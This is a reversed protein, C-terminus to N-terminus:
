IDCAFARCIYVPQPLPQTFVERYLTVCFHAQKNSHDLLVVRRVTKATTTVMYALSTFHYLILAHTTVM